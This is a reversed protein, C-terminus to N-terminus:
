SAKLSIFVPPLRKWTLGVALIASKRDLCPFIVLKLRAEHAQGVGDVM